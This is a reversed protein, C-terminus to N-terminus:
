QKQYVAWYPIHNGSNTNQFPLWFAPASADQGPPADRDIGTVWIQPRPTELASNNLIRGYDRTSSFALWLRRGSFDSPAWKPWSNGNLAGGNARELPIAVGGAAHILWLEVDPNGMGNGQNPNPGTRNFAIFRGDPSFAPRDNSRDGELPVLVEPMAWRGDVFRWRAIAGLNIGVNPLPNSFGADGFAAVIADGQWSWDPSGGVKGAPMPLSELVEGTTASRISLQGDNGGVIRENDPAFSPFYGRVRVGSLDAMAGPVQAPDYLLQRPAAVASVVMDGFPPFTTRAFAIRSGDRSLAHCAPCAIEPAVAPTLFPEPATDGAALRMIGSDGTSWYYVAGQLASRDIEFVYAPTTCRRDGAGGLGSIALRLPGGAAARLLAQWPEGEPVVQEATTFWRISLEGATFELQFLDHSRGSWQFAVGEINRPFATLPAPYILDPACGEGEPADRFREPADPPTGPAIVDELAVIEVFARAEAREYRAIVTASGPRGASTFVGTADVVGLEAPEVTWEVLAPDVIDPQEGPPTRTLTYQVIPPPGDSLQISTRAPELALTGFGPDVAGDAMAGDAMAGDALPDADAAVDGDAAADGGRAADGPLGRGTDQEHLEGDHGGGDDCAWVLFLFSLGLLAYPRAM